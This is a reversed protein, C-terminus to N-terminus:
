GIRVPVHWIPKAVTKFALRMPHISNPLPFASNPFPPFFCLAIIGDKSLRSMQARQQSNDATKYM